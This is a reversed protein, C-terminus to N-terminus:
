NVPGGALVFSGGNAEEKINVTKWFRRLTVEAGTVILWPLTRTM